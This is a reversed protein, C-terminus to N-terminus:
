QKERAAKLTRKKDKVKSMKIIISKSTSKKTNMKNSVRQAEQFQNDTEKGLNPFNEIMIEDFM